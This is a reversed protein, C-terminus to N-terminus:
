GRNGGVLIEFHVGENVPVKGRRSDQADLLVHFDKYYEQVLKLKEWRIAANQPTEM